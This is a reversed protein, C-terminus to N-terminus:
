AGKLHVVTWADAMEDFFLEFSQGGEVAVRFFRGRPSRWRAQIKVIELRQDEWRVYVPREAYLSDSRCEVLDTM